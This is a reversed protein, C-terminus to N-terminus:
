KEVFHCGSTRSIPWMLIWLGVRRDQGFQGGIGPENVVDIIQVGPYRQCFSAMWNQVAAPGTEPALSSTWSPQQSGWIFNHQKFVINNDTCYKYMADLSTWNFSDQGTRQVSGWKGANEPTRL